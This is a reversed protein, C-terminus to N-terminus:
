KKRKKRTRQKLKEHDVRSGDEAVFRKIIEKLREPTDENRLLTELYPRLSKAIESVLMGKYPGDLMRADPGAASLTAEYFRDGGDDDENYVIGRPPLGGVRDDGQLWQRFEKLTPM